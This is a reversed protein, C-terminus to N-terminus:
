GHVTGTDDLQRIAFLYDTDRRWTQISAMSDKPDLSRYRTLLPGKELPHDAVLHPRALRSLSAIKWFDNESLEVARCAIALGEIRPDFLIRKVIHDPLGTLKEFLSVFLNVEGAELADVLVEPEITKERAISEALLESATVSKKVAPKWESQDLAAQELLDDMATTDLDYRVLIFQRLAASVWMYMRKALMPDLDNRQLIPEQFSDMRRSEEVLFEMTAKSIRANENQLLSRIVGSNGTEVLADTVQESLSHRITIAMQHELTRERVVGILDDDRLVVSQALLPFAVEIEDNILERCLDGPADPLGALHESVVRRVGMEMDHIVRRLIDFMLTQERESLDESAKLFIDSLAEGLKRRGAASRDRALELLYKSDVSGM